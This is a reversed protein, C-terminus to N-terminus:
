SHHELYEIAQLLLDERERFAGLGGNCGDCLVGRVIRTAHEHDVQEAPKKRCIACLGEQKEIM